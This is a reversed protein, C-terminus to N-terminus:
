RRRARPSAPRRRPGTSSRRRTERRRQHRRVGRSAVLDEVEVSSADEGPLREEAVGPKGVEGGRRAGVELCRHRHQGLRTGPEENMRLERGGRRRWRKTSVPVPLRASWRRPLQLRDCEQDREAAGRSARDVDDMERGGVCQRQQSLRAGFSQGDRDLGARVVQVEGGLVDGVAVRAVLARRRNASAGISFRQPVREGVAGDIQHRAIVRGHRWCQFGRGVAVERAGPAADRRDLERQWHDPGARQRAAERELAEGLPQARTRRLQETEIVIAARDGGALERAQHRPVGFRAEDDIRRPQQEAM